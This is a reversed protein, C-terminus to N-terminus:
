VSAKPDHTWAERVMDVVKNVEEESLPEGELTRFILPLKGALERDSLIAPPIMGRGVAALRRLERAETSNAELGLAQEYVLLREESDPPFLLGRELKSYNSADVQVRQAFERLGMKRDLRLQKVYAGFTEM